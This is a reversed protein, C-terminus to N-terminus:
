THRMVETHHTPWVHENFSKGKVGVVEGGKGSSSASKSGFCSALSILLVTSLVSILIKKM